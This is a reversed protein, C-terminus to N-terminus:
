ECLEIAQLIAAGLDEDDATASIRIPEKGARSYGKRPGANLLPEVIISGEDEVVNISPVQRVFAGWTRVGALQLMPRLREKWETPHPVGERSQNLAVRVHAALETPTTDLPMKEYPEVSIWGGTTTKGM